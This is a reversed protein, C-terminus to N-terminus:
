AGPDVPVAARMAELVAGERPLPVAPDGGAFIRVQVLAQHLLMGFGSVVPSEAARWRLALTSPWPSYAVDFLTSSAAVVDPVRLADAAGGPLTSVVLPHPAGSEWDAFPRVDLVVGLATAVPELAAAREPSRLTVTVRAAGLEAAAAIASAATAGGGLVEVRDASTIGAEALARVIGAVDTNFGRLREGEVLVTNVAGTARAVLDEEALLPRVAHKLPMTLSLGHWRERAIVDALTAETAEVATYTWELGLVGYAAAHLAPSKSHAIPSGLVALRRPGEIM